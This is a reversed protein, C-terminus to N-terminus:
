VTADQYERNYGYRRISLIERSNKGKYIIKGVENSSEEPPIYFM